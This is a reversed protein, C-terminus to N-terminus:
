DHWIWYASSCIETQHWFHQMDAPRALDSLSRALEQIFSHSYVPRYALNQALKTFKTKPCTGLLAPSCSGPLNPLFGQSWSTGRTGESFFVNDWSCRPVMDQIEKQYWLQYHEPGDLIFFRNNQIQYKMVQAGFQLQPKHQQRIKRKTSDVRANHHEQDKWPEYWLTLFVLLPQSELMTKWATEQGARDSGEFGASLDTPSSAKFGQAVFTASVQSPGHRVELFDARGNQSRLLISTLPDAVGGPADEEPLNYGVKLSQRVQGTIRLSLQGPRKGTTRLENDLTIRSLSSLSGENSFKSRRLADRLVM